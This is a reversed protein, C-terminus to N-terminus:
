VQHSSLAQNTSCGYRLQRQACETFRTVRLVIALHHLKPRGVRISICAHCCGHEPRLMARRSRATRRELVRDAMDVSHRLKGAADPGDDVFHGDLVDGLLHAKAVAVLGHADIPSALRTRVVDSACLHGATGLIPQSYSRMGQLPCAGMRVHVQNARQRGSTGCALLHEPENSRPPCRASTGQSRPWASSGLSDGVWHM